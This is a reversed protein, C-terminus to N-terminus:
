VISTYQVRFYCNNWKPMSSLVQQMIFPHEMYSLRLKFHFCLKLSAKRENWQYNEIRIGVHEYYLDWQEIWWVSEYLFRSTHAGHIQTNYLIFICTCKSTCQKGSYIARSSWSVVLVTTFIGLTVVNVHMGTLFTLITGKDM